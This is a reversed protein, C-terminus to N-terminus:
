LQSEAAIGYAMFQAIYVVILKTIHLCSCVTVHAMGWVSFNNSM